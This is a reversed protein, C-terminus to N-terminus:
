TCARSTRACSHRWSRPTPAGTVARCRRSSLDPSSAIRYAVPRAMQLCYNVRSRQVALGWLVPGLVELGPSHAQAEFRQLDLLLSRDLTFQLTSGPASDSGPAATHLRRQLDSARPLM